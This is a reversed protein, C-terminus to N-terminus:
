CFSRCWNNFENNVGDVRIRLIAPLEYPHLEKLKREVADVSKDSTKALLVFETEEVLKGEWKYLSSYSKLINICCCLKEEVLIKGVKKAESVNPFPCYVIYM